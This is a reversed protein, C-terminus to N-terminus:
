TAPEQKEPPKVIRDYVVLLVGTLLGIGTVIYWILEPQKQVEGYRHMLFGALPGGLLSGIGIPLFAFGMYTGQQGPPALRSIYEYYRPSQIIEGLAVVVLTIVAMTVTPQLAVILWAISTVFTGLAIAPLAPIRRTLFNVLVTGAIVTIPGAAIVRSTTANLVDEAVGPLVFFKIYRPLLIFEQWFVIWYGSFILLFLMFRYNSVVAGFNRVVAGLSAAEAGTRAPEKFFVLVALLMVFVSAAAVRFVWETPLGLDAVGSAMFPGLASGVNVMTYYISYGISRVNERSSRATTGVIVPKVLAVGLAPLALIVFLLPILGVSDAVPKLWASTISGLLFYATALIFYALALARRFGMRDALAGGFVAMFWVFGGFFGALNGAQQEGLRLNDALYTALVAFSGYYSLREFMETINAVWFPRDFGTRVEQLRDSFTM